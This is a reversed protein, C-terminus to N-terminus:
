TNRLNLSASSRNTRAMLNRMQYFSFVRLISEATCVCYRNMKGSVTGPCKTEVDDIDNLQSFLPDESNIAIMKWDLEGDDIM